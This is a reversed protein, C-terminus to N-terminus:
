APALHQLRQGLLQLRLGPLLAAILRNGAELSGLHRPLLLGDLDKSRSYSPRFRRVSAPNLIHTNEKSASTGIM